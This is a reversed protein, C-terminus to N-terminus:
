YLAMKRLMEHPGALGSKKRGRRCSPNSRHECQNPALSPTILWPPLQVFYAGWLGRWAENARAFRKPEGTSGFVGLGRRLKLLARHLVQLLSGFWPLYGDPAAVLREARM